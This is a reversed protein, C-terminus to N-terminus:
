IRNVISSPLFINPLALHSLQFFFCNLSFVSAENTSSPQQSFCQRHKEIWRCRMKGGVVRIRLMKIKKVHQKVAKRQLQEGWCFMIVVNGKETYVTSSRTVYVLMQASQLILQVFPWSHLVIVYHPTKIKSHDTGMDLQPNFFVFVINNQKRLM